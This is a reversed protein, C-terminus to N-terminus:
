VILFSCFYWYACTQTSASSVFYRFDLVLRQTKGPVKPKELDLHAGSILKTMPQVVLCTLFPTFLWVPLHIGKGTYSRKSQKSGQEKFNVASWRWVSLVGQFRLFFSAMNVYSSILKFSVQPLRKLANKELLSFPYAINESTYAPLVVQILNNRLKTLAKEVRACQSPM